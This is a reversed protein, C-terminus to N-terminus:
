FNFFNVKKTNIQKIKHKFITM